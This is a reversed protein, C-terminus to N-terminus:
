FHMKLYKIFERCLDSIKSIDGHKFPIIQSNKTQRIMYDGSLFVALVTSNKLANQSDCFLLLLFIFFNKEGSSSNSDSSNLSRVINKILYVGFLLM